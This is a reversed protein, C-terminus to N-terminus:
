GPCKENLEEMRRPQVSLILTFMKRLTWQVKEWGKEEEDEKEEIIGVESHSTEMESVFDSIQIALSILPTDVSNLPRRRGVGDTVVGMM